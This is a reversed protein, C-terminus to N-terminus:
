KNLEAPWDVVLEFSQVQASAPSTNMLFRGDPSVDYWRGSLNRVAVEFLGSPTGLEIGGAHTKVTVAMLKLNERYFVEKGDRRWVPREGGNTSVQYQAGGGPFATIYIEGRGSQDSEYALWKGDPSFAPSSENAPSHLFPQPKHDGTLGVTYVDM